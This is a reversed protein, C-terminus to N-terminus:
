DPLNEIKTIYKNFESLNSTEAFIENLKNFNNINNFNYKKKM